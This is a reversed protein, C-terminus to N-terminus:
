IDKLLIKVFLDIVKLKDVAFDVFRKVEDAKSVDCIKSFINQKNILYLSHLAKNLNNEDRSCIVVRHGMKLFEKAMEYGIGKSGGTIVIGLIKKNKMANKYKKTLFLKYGLFFLGTTISINWINELINKTFSNM